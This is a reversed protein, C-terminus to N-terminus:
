RAHRRVLVVTMDRSSSSASGAAPLDEVDRGHGGLADLRPVHPLGHSRRAKM